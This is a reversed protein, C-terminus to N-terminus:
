HWFVSPDREHPFQPNVIPHHDGYTWTKGNDESRAISITNRNPTSPHKAMYHTTYFAWVVGQDVVACGSYYSVQNGGQLVTPLHKWHLLDKSVAHDWNTGVYKGERNSFGQFMMHWEGELYYLGNPDSLWGTDRSYHIQPRYPDLYDPHIYTTNTEGPSKEQMCSCLCGFAFLLIPIRFCIKKM